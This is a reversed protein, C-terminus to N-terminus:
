LSENASVAPHNPGCKPDDDDVFLKVLAYLKRRAHNRLMNGPRTRWVQQRFRLIFNFSFRTLSVSAESSQQVIGLHVPLASFCGFIRPCTFFCLLGTHSNVM